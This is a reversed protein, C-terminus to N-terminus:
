QQDPSPKTAIDVRGQINKPKANADRLVQEFTKGNLERRVAPPVSIKFPKVSFDARFGTLSVVAPHGPSSRQDAAACIYLEAGVLKIQDSASLSSLMHANTREFAAPSSGDIRVPLSTCGIEGSMPVLLALCWALKPM